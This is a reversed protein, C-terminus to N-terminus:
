VCVQRGKLFETFGKITVHLDQEVKCVLKRHAQDGGDGLRKVVSAVGLGEKGQGARFGLGLSDRNATTEVIRTWTPSSM